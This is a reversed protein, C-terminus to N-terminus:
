RNRRVRKALLATRVQGLQWAWVEHPVLQGDRWRPRNLRTRPIVGEDHRHLINSLEHRAVPEGGKNLVRMLETETLHQAEGIDLQAAQHAQLPARYGCSCEVLGGEDPNIRDQWIHSDCNPCHGYYMKAPRRDIVARGFVVADALRSFVEVVRQDSCLEAWGELYAAATPVPRGGLARFLRRIAKSAAEHWPLPSEDPEPASEPGSTVLQDQRTLTVELDTVLAPVDQLLRRLTGECRPCLFAGVPKGHDCIGTGTGLPEDGTSWMRSLYSDLTRRVRPPTPTEPEYGGGAVFRREAETMTFSDSHRPCGCMVRPLDTLACLPLGLGPVALGIDSRSAAQLPTRNVRAGTAPHVDPAMSSGSHPLSPAGALTRGV